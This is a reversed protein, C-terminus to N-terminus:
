HLVKLKNEIERIACRYQMLITMFTTIRIPIDALQGEATTRLFGMGEMAGLGILENKEKM